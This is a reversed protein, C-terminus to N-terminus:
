HAGSLAKMGADIAKKCCAEHPGAAIAKFIKEAEAKHGAKILNSALRLRLANAEVHPVSGKAPDLAAQIVADFGPEAGRSMATAAAARIRPDADEVCKRLAEVVAAGTRRGLEAIAGLRFTTGEATTAATALAATAADGPIQGLVARVAERVELDDLLTYATMNPREVTRVLTAVEDPGAIEGLFRCLERRGASARDSERPPNRKGAWDVIGGQVFKAIAAALNKRATESDKGGVLAAARQLALMAKRKAPGDESLQGALTKLDLTVDNM